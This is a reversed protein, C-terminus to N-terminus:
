MGIDTGREEWDGWVYIRRRDEREEESFPSNGGLIVGEGLERKSGSVVPCLVAPCEYGHHQSQRVSSFIPDLSAAQLIEWRSHTTPRRGLKTLLRLGAEALLDGVPMSQTIM